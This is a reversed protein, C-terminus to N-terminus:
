GRASWRVHGYGHDPATGGLDERRRDVPILWHGHGQLDRRSRYRLDYVALLTGDNTKAIAPIRTTHCDHDGQQHIVVFPREAVTPMAGVSLLSLVGLVMQKTVTKM